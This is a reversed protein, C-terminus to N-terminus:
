AYPPLTLTSCASFGAVRSSYKFRRRRLESVNEPLVARFENFGNDKDSPGASALLCCTSLLPLLDWIGGDGGFTGDVLEGLPKGEELYWSDLVPPGTHAQTGIFDYESCTSTPMLFCEMGCNSPILPHSGQFYPSM